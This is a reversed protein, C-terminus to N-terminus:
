TKPAVAQLSDQSGKPPGPVYTAIYEPLNAGCITPVGAPNDHPNGDTCITDAMEVVPWHFEEDTSPSRWGSSKVWFVTGYRDKLEMEYFPNSYAALNPIWTAEYTIATEGSRLYRTLKEVTGFGSGTNCFPQRGSDSYEMQTDLFCLTEFWYDNTWPLLVKGTQPTFVIYPGGPDELGRTELWSDLKGSTWDAQTSGSIESPNILDNLQTATAVQWGTYGDYSGSIAGSMTAEGVLPGCPHNSSVPTACSAGSSQALTFEQLSQPFLLGTGNLTIVDGNSYPGGGVTWQDVIEEYGYYIYNAVEQCLYEPSEGSGEDPASEEGCVEAHVGGANETPSGAAQWAEYHYVEAMMEFAELQYTYYYDEMSGVVKEYYDRDDTTGTAPVDGLAKICEGLVGYAGSGAPDLGTWINTLATSLSYGGDPQYGGTSADNANAVFQEIDGESPDPDTAFTDTSAKWGLLTQFEIWLDNIRSTYPGVSTAELTDCTQRDLEEDISVLTDNIAQLEGQISLLDQNIEALQKTEKDAAGFGSLM